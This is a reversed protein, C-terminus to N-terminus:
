RQSDIVLQAGFVGQERAVDDRPEIWLDRIVDRVINERGILDTLVILSLSQGEAIGPEDIRFGDIGEANRSGSYPGPSWPCHRKRRLIHAHVEVAVVPENRY